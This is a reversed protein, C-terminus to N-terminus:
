TDEAPMCHKIVLSIQYHKIALNSYFQGVISGTHISYKKEKEAETMLFHPPDNPRFLIRALWHKPQIVKSAAIIHSQRKDERLTTTTTEKSFDTQHSQSGKSGVVKHQHEDPLKAPAL